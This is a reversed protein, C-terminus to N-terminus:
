AAAEKRRDLIYYLILLWIGIAEVAGTIFYTGVFPRLGFITAGQIREMFGVLWDMSIMDTFAALSSLLSFNNMTFAFALAGFSMIAWPVIYKRDNMVIHYALFPVIIMLYQPAPVWLFVIASTFFVCSMFKEDINEPGSRYMRYAVYAALPIVIIQLFMVISYGISTFMEEWTVADSPVGSSDVRNFIFALSEMVTGDMIQPLFVILSTVFVGALGYALKRFAEKKDPGHKTIVYAALVFILYVPFLKTLTALALASGAAFYRGKYAAMVSLLMFLVSITDFMGQVASMYIVIPCLLWLAAGITSKREDDTREKIFRYLLIGILMDSLLMPIKVLVNFEITTIEAKYLDWWLLEMPVASNFYGGLPIDMLFSGFFSVIGLIYGWVPSYYYGPLEYLGNGSEINQITIAWHSVDYPYALLPILILRILLGVLFVLVIPRKVFRLVRETRNEEAVDTM